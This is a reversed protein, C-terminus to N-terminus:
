VKFDLFEDSDETWPAKADEVLVTKPESDEKQEEGDIEVSFKHYDKGAYKGGSLIDKSIYTVRVRDNPKVTKFLFDLHGSKNLVVTEGTDDIFQYQPGYRGEVMDIYKGTVLVQHPHCDAYKYYKSIGTLQRFAM